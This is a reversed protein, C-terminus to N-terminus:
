IPVLPYTLSKSDLFGRLAERRKLHFSIDLTALCTWEIGAGFFSQESSPVGSCVGRDIAEGLERLVFGLWFTQAVNDQDKTAHAIVRYGLSGSPPRM